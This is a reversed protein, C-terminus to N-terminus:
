LLNEKKIDQKPYSATKDPTLSVSSTSSNPQLQNISTPTEKIIVSMYPPLIFNNSAETEDEVPMRVYMGKKTSIWGDKDKAAKIVNRVRRESM